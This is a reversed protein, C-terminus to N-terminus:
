SAKKGKHSMKWFSSNPKALIKFVTKCQSSGPSPDKKSFKLLCKMSWPRQNRTSNLCHAKPLPKTLYQNKSHNKNKNRNQTQSNKKQYTKSLSRPKSKRKTTSNTLTQLCSSGELLLSAQITIIRCPNKYKLWLYM